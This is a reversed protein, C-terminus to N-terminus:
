PSQVRALTDNQSLELYLQQHKAVEQDISFCEKVRERALKGLQDRKEPHQALEDLGVAFAEVDGSPVVLATQNPQHIDRMSHIDTVVCPLGCAMAEIVAVGFGERQSCFAFIDISHLFSQIDSVKGLLRVRQQLGLKVSLSRIEDVYSADLFDGALVLALNSKSQALAQLLHAHNKLPVFNAVNGVITTGDAFGWAQRMDSGLADPSFRGVNVGRPIVRVKYRQKAFFLDLMETNLAVIAKALRSRVLWARNGWSMNKKTFIWNRTGAMRAILPETYDDSYNFSHWLSFRYARFVRAAKWARLLLTHYPRARVTVPAEIFPIGLREVEKDLAGGKRSVCVAPAFKQRDLREIIDLMARGSGATIFNPITFLIALPENM